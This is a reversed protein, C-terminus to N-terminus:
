IFQHWIYGTLLVLPYIVVTLIINKLAATYFATALDVDDDVKLAVVPAIMFLSAVLMVGISDGWMLIPASPFKATIFWSWYKSLTLGGSITAAVGAITSLLFMLFTKM